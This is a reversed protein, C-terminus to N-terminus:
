APVGVARIQREIEPPWGAYDGKPIFDGPLVFTIGQYSHPMGLADVVMLNLRGDPLVDAVIAALTTTGARRPVNDDPRPYFTVHRGQTPLSM